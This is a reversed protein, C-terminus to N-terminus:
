LDKSTRLAKLLPKLERRRNQETYIDLEPELADNDTLEWLAM